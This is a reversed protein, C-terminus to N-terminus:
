TNEDWDTDTQSTQNATTKPTPVPAPFMPAIENTAPNYKYQSQAKHGRWRPSKDTGELNEINVNFTSGDRHLIYRPICGHHLAYVIQKVSLRPPLRPEGPLPPPLVLYTPVYDGPALYFLLTPDSLDRRYLSGNRYIFVKSLRDSNVPTPM